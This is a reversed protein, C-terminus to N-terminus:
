YWEDFNFSDEANNDEGAWGASNKTGKAGKSKTKSGQYRHSMGQVFGAGLAESETHGM